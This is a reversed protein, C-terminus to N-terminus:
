VKYTQRLRREVEDDELYYGDGFDKDPDIVNQVLQILRLQPHRDWVQRVLSLVQSIRDPDRM